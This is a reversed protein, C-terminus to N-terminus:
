QNLINEVQKVLQNYEKRITDSTISNREKKLCQRIYYATLGHKKSLNNVVQSNFSQRKNKSKDM